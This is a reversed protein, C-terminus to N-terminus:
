PCVEQVLDPIKKRSWLDRDHSDSHGFFSIIRRREAPEVSTGEYTKFGGDLWVVLDITSHINFLRGSSVNQMAPLNDRRVPPSLQILTCAQLGMQTAMNVVNNGHSAAILRLTTAPHSEVWSVLKKAAQRWIGRLQNDALAYRGSWFYFDQGSYVDPYVQTRIYEHFVGGPKYWESNMGFTGHIIVTMSTRLPQPPTQPKDHQLTGQLRKAQQKGMKVLAHAALLREDEDGSDMASVLIPVAADTGTAQWYAYAACCRTMPDGDLLSIALQRVALDSVSKDRKRQKLSLAILSKRARPTLVMDAVEGAQTKLRRGTERLGKVKRPVAAKIGHLLKILPAVASDHVVPRQLPAPLKGKPRAKRRMQQLENGLQLCQLARKRPPMHLLNRVDGLKM